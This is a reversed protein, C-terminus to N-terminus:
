LADFAQAVEKAKELLTERQLGVDTPTYLAWEIQELIKQLKANLDPPINQKSLHEHITKRDVIQDELKLKNVIYKKLSYNLTSYFKEKDTDYLYKEAEKFSDETKLNPEKTQSKEQQPTSQKKIITRKNDKKIWIILGLMVCIGIGAIIWWRNAFLRNYFYEDKKEPTINSTTKKNGQTVKFKIANTSANKYSATQPDFFTFQIAPIEYTGASDATFSYNYTIKGSVPVDLKDIDTTIKPEYGDLGTPWNIDPATILPMNGKGDITLLLQGADDTSLTNKNLSANITFSGVAGKFGAPKNDPLPKVTIFIPKNQLTVKHSEIAEPPLTIDSFDDFIDDIRQRQNAYEEKIFQITNEVEAKEIEITGAQLPYLQAKRITYVNYEKGNYNERTSYFNDPGQLDIVSFGNFSPNKTLISESKLRTYLKYTVIIPEGVYCSSKDTTALVFMNKQVKEQPSEGKKLINENNAAEERAFPDIGPWPSQFFSNAASNNSSSNNGSTSNTVVIDTSNSQLTKGNVIATAPPISLKGTTLPQLIYTISVSKKIVNNIISTSSEQNPGSIINFNKLSPAIIKEVSEANEVTFKLQAYENKGIKDLTFTATFKVQSFSYFSTLLLLISLLQKNM